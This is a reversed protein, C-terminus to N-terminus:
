RKRLIESLRQELNLLFKLKALNDLFTQRIAPQHKNQALKQYGEELAQCVGRLEEGIQDSMARGQGSGQELADLGEQLDFMDMIFDAPPRGLRVEEGPYLLRLLYKGREFPNFLCAKAEHLLSTHHLSLAQDREDAQAFFDPHLNLILEDFVAEIAKKDVKFRRPQSFLTFYDERDDVQQLRECASCFLASKLTSECSDCQPQDRGMSSSARRKPPSVPGAVALPM